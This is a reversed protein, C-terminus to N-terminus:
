RRAFGARENKIANFIKKTKIKTMTKTKTKPKTNTKTKIKIVFSQLYDM